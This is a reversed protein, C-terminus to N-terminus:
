HSAPRGPEALQPVRRGSAISRACCDASSSFRTRVPWSL